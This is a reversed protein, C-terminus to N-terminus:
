SPDGVPCLWVLQFRDTCMAEELLPYVGPQAGEGSLIEIEDGAAPREPLEAKLVSFVRRRQHTPLGFDGIAEVDVMRPVIRVDVPDGGASRYVARATVGDFVDALMAEIDERGISM